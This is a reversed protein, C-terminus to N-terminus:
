IEKRQHNKKSAAYSHVLVSFGIKEPRGWGIQHSDKGFNNGDCMFLNTNVSYNRITEKERGLHLNSQPEWSITPKNVVSSGGHRTM